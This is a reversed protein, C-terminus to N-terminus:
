SISIKSLVLTVRAPVVIVSVLLRKNSTPTSAITVRKITNFMDTRLAKLCLEEQRSLLLVGSFCPKALHVFILGLMLLIVEVNFFLNRRRIMAIHVYGCRRAKAEDTKKRIYAPVGPALEKLEYNSKTKTWDKFDMIKKALDFKEEQLKQAVANVSLAQTQVSILVELIRSISQNRDVESNLSHIGKAIDYAVKSSAILSSIEAFM